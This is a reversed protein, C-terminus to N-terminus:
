MISRAKLRPAPMSYGFNENNAPTGEIDDQMWEVGSLPEFDANSSDLEMSSAAGQATDEGTAGVFLYHNNGNGESEAYSLDYGWTDGADRSGPVGTTAADWRESGSSTLGSVSGKALYIEGAGASGGPDAYVAGIALDDYTGYNFRGVTLTGGLQAGAALSGTLGAGQYLFQNGTTSLGSTTGYIINVAGNSSNGGVTEIPAGIALDVCDLSNNTDGDFNAAALEMGFNDGL